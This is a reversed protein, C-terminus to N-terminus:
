AVGWALNRLGPFPTRLTSALLLVLVESCFHNGLSTYHLPPFFALPSPSLPHLMIAFISHGLSFAAMLFSGLAATLLLQEHIPLEQDLLDRPRKDWPLDEYRQLRSVYLTKIITWCVLLIPVARFFISHLRNGVKPLWTKRTHRVDATTWTFGTGRMSLELELAWAARDAWDVPPTEETRATEYVPRPDPGTITTTLLDNAQQIASPRRQNNDSNGDDKAPSTDNPIARIPVNGNSGDPVLFPDKVGGNTWEKEDPSIHPHAEERPRFDYRVRKPVHSFVYPSIFFADVVRCGGYIGVLGLQYTLGVSQPVHYDLSLRFFLYAAILALVNRLSTLALTDASPPTPPALFLLAAYYILPPLVAALLTLPKSGPIPHLGPRPASSLFQELVTNM